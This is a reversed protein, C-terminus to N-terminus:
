DAASTLAISVVSTRQDTRKGPPSAGAATLIENELARNLLM